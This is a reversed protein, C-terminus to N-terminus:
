DHIAAIVVQIGLLAAYGGILWGWSKVELGWGFMTSFFGTAFTAVMLILVALLKM